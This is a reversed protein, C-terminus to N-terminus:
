RRFKEIARFDKRTLVLISYAELAALSIASIREFALVLARGHVFGFRGGGSGFRDM